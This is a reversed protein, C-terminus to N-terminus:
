IPSISWGRSYGWGSVSVKNGEQPPPLRADFMSTHLPTRKKQAQSVVTKLKESVLVGHFSRVGPDGSPCDQPSRLVWDPCVGTRRVDSQPDAGVQNWPLYKLVPLCLGDAIPGFAAGSQFTSFHDAGAGRTYPAEVTNRQPRAFSRRVDFYIDTDRKKPAQSVM